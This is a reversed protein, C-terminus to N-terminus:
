YGNQRRWEARKEEEMYEEWEANACEMWKRKQPDPEAAIEEPKFPARKSRHFM